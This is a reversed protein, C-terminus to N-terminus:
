RVSFYTHKCVSLIGQADALAEKKDDPITALYSESVCGVHIKKLMSGDISEVIGELKPGKKAEILVKM